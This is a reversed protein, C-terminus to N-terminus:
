LFPDDIKCSFFHRGDLFTKGIVLINIIFDYTKGLNFRVGVMENIM